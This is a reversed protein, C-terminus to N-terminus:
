FKTIWEEEPLVNLHEYVKFLNYLAIWEINADFGAKDEIMVNFYYKDKYYGFNGRESSIEPNKNVYDFIIDDSKFRDIYIDIQEPSSSTSIILKIDKRNTLIQLTEKAYPFYRVLKSDKVHDPLIITNHIDIVFYTTFWEKEFSNIFMKHVYSSMNTKTLEEFNLEKISM